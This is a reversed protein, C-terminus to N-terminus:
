RKAAQQREQEQLRQKDWEELAAREMAQICDMVAPLRRPRIHAIERLYRLVSDYNLGERGHMSVTWQTQLKGWLQYMEVNCPWLYFMDPTPDPKGTDEGGDEDEDSEVIQLGLAAAAEEVQDDSNDLLQRSDHLQGRAWLRM